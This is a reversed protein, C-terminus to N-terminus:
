IIIFQEAHNLELDIRRIVDNKDTCLAREVRAISVLDLVRLHFVGQFDTRTFHVVEGRALGCPGDDRVSLVSEFDKFEEDILALERVLM